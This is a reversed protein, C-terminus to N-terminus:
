RSLETVILSVQSVGGSVSVQATYTVSGAAPTDLHIIPTCMVAYETFSGTVLGGGSVTYRTDKAVSLNVQKLLTGGGASSLLQLVGGVGSTYYTADGAAMAQLLVGGSGRATITVSAGAPGVAVGSQSVANAFIDDHLINVPVNFSFVGATTVGYDFVSTATGSDSFMLKDATMNIASGGASLAVIEFGAYSAGATLYLGYAATSGTPGAKAAFYIQGSASIDDYSATLTTIDSALAGDASARATAEATVNASIALDAAQYAADLTTISSALAGDASTRAIQETVVSASITADASIYNSEVTSIRSDVSNLASRQFQYTFEEWDLLYKTPTGDATVRAVHSPLVLPQDLGLLAPSTPM